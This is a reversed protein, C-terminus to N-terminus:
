VFETSTIYFANANFKVYMGTKFRNSSLEVAVARVPVYPGNNSSFTFSLGWWSKM